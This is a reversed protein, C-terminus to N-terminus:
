PNYELVLEMVESNYSSFIGLGNEVNTFTMVPEAFPDTNNQDQKEVTKKYLYYDKHVVRGVLKIPFFELRPAPDPKTDTTSSIRIPYSPLRFTFSLSSGSFLKDDFLLTNSLYTTAGNSFFPDDSELPMDNLGADTDPAVIDNGLSDKSYKYLSYGLLVFEYYTEGPVDTLTITFEYISSGFKSVVSRVDTLVFDPKETPQTTTATIPGYGPRIVNLEYSSGPKPRHFPSRYISPMVMEFETLFQGDEYVEVRADSISDFEDDKSALSKGETLNVVMLSDPSFVSNVTVHPTGYPIEIDIVKTCGTFILTFIILTNKM